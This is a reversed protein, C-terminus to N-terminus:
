LDIKNIEVILNKNKVEINLIIDCNPKFRLDIYNWFLNADEGEKFAAGEVVKTHGYREIIEFNANKAAQYISSSLQCIGGGISPILKGNRMERGLIFGKKQTPRGIQRWFSFVSNKSIFIGNLKKACIKINEIKGHRLYEQDKPIQTYLNSSIESIKNIQLNSIDIKKHLKIPCILNIIARRLILIRSKLYFELEPKM